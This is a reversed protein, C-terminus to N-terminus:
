EKNSVISADTWMAKLVPLFNEREEATGAVSAGTTPEYFYQYCFFVVGTCDSLSSNVYELCSKIVDRNNVWEYQAETSGAYTDITGNYGNLAKGLTIGIYLTVSNHTVINSWGTSCTGFGQSNHLMGFYVQPCIYDIYGSTSCWTYVDAYQSSYVTSMNGAPSIGFLIDTDVSKVASYIGSVLLNLNQRRWNALSLSGTYASYASSDFSSDTTPYFYDDMHIGDVNYLTCIEKAGDIILQRVEEYAPNLYYYSSYLVVYKGNYSSSQYWEGVKYSTSVKSIDSSSMLRLPNIWAQVSLNKAHALEIIIAFPDYSASNGYSGVVYKSMTYYESPYMSDGNPRVQVFLTNIDCAVCNDIITNMLARFSAESRQSSGSTYVSSLDFQSLWMGKVKTYNIQQYEDPDPDESGSGNGTDDPLTGDGTFISIYSEGAVCTANNLNIDDTLVLLDGVDVYACAAQTEAGMHVAVVIGNTPVEVSKSDGVSYKETVIYGGKAESYGAVYVEWYTATFASGYSITYIHSGGSTYQSANMGNIYIVGELTQGIDTAFQATYTANDSIATTSTPLTPTWATFIYGDNAVPTPLTIESWLTGEDVTIVTTGSLHGGDGALFTIVYQDAPTIIFSATYTADESVVSPFSPSWDTFTYGESAVVTPVTIDSWATGTPVSVVTNGSLTGGSGAVFTVTSWQSADYEFVATFTLNETIEDDDSPLEPSWGVFKYGANATATPVTIDSWVAGETVTQLTSGSISGNTGAAFSVTYTPVVQGMSGYIEFEGFRGIYDSMTCEFYVYSVNEASGGVTLSYGCDGTSVFDAGTGFLTTLDSTSSGVYISVSDPLVRNSSGTRLGFNMVAETMTISESLKFIIGITGSSRSIEVWADDTASLWTGDNLYGAGYAASADFSDPLSTQITGNSVLYTGGNAALAYNEIESGTRETFVATYAADATIASSSAPLSPSWHSFRYGENAVPTPVTIKSWASGDAVTFTTTGSLSGNPGSVFNVTRSITTTEPGLVKIEGVRAAYYTSMSLTIQLYKISSTATNEIVAQYGYGSLHDFTSTEGMTSWNMFGSLSTRTTYKVTVKDPLGRNGATVPTGLNIVVQEIDSKASDLKVVFVIVNSQAGMGSTSGRAVEVWQGDGLLVISDDNLYGNGFSYTKSDRGGTTETSVVEFPTDPYGELITGTSYAYTGGNSSAAYNERYTASQETVFLATYTLDSTIEVDSEPLAPSWSDFTYGSNAVPVPVTIADSWLTGELINDFYWTGSISGNSGSVFVVTYTPIAKFSATYTVSETITSPFSPTWSDFKYGDNPIPNPVSISTWATGNLVTFSAAGSLSGNDGAAFTVTVYQTEDYVFSASYTSDVTVSTPFSPSWCNFKYGANAIPTPVTISTWASGKLVTVTATGSLYGNAEAVFTVTAYQTADYVFSATFVCDSTVAEPFAPSWSDFKYGANATPTPVTIEGWLTGNLVKFTSTGVISGDDGAVFTVTSFQSEDYVFTAEYSASETFTVPLTPSWSDFKYGADATPVPLTLDTAATGALVTLVTSGSLSGNDGAVFSVTVYQTADYVFNATYSADENIYEPFASTWSDFKYGAAAIPTPVTISSWASGKLVTFALTGELTGNSSASFIVTAYQDNDLAFTATYTASENIETQFTPTWGVFKYGVEAVCEPVTIESWLTGKLVKYTAVGEIKGNDGAVFEITAYQEDDVTFLATYVADSVVTQPISPSWSDFKYGKDAIVTPLAIESFDSGILVTYEALGEISGNDGAVFRVTAYKTEDYVFNATYVGDSDVTEPFSPTWSDFKYGADAVPTPVSLSSWKSGKLVELECTGDLTGNGGSVFSVNVYQTKDIEFQAVYEVDATIASSNAPLEPSWGVFKYGDNPVPTPVSVTNWLTSSDVVYSTTGELSGGEAANFTVTHTKVSAGATGYVQVEGFRGIFKSMPCVFKVASVNDASATVTATYGYDGVATYASTTGIYVDFEETVAYISVSDPLARNSSDKLLGVNLVAKTMNIPTSFKVLLVIQYNSRSVDLWEDDTDSFLIDDNLKGSGLEETCDFSDSTNYPAGVTLMYSGGNVASAYNIEDTTKVAEFSATFTLDSEVTDPFAPSWGIFVFGSNAVATPVSVESFLTGAPVSVSTDSSITGGVGCLFSVTYMTVDSSEESSSESSDDFGDGPHKSAYIDDKAQAYCLMLAYDTVTVAGDYDMDCAAVSADSLSLKGAIYLKSFLLDVSTFFGDGDADGKVVISATEIGNSIKYGTCVIESDTARRSNANYVTLSTIDNEFGNAFASVSTAQEVDYVLMRDRDIYYVTSSLIDAASSGIPYAAFLSVVMLVALLASLNQKVKM